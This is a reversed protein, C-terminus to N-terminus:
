SVLQKRENVIGVIAQFRQEAEEHRLNVSGSHEVKKAPADEDYNTAITWAAKFAAGSTEDRAARVLALQAKRDMRLKALMEKLRLPPRGTSGRNGRVGGPM